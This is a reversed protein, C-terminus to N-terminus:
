LKLFHVKSQSPEAFICCLDMETVPHPHDKILCLLMKFRLHQPIPAFGFEYEQWSCQMVNVCLDILPPIVGISNSHTNHPTHIPPSPNQKINTTNPLSYPLLTGKNEQYHFYIGSNVIHRFCTHRMDVLSWM